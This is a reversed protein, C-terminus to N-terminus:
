DSSISVLLGFPAHVRRGARNPPLRRSIRVDTALAGDIIGCPAYQYAGGAAAAIECRQDALSARQDRPTFRLVILAATRNIGGAVLLSLSTSCRATSFSVEEPSLCLRRPLVKFYWRHTRAPSYDFM